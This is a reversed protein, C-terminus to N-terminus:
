VGARDGNSALNTRRPITKPPTKTTDLSVRNWSCSGGNRPFAALEVVAVAGAVKPSVPPEKAPGAAAAAMGGAPKQEEYDPITMGDGAPASAPAGGDTTVEDYLSM